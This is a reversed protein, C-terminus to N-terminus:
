AADKMPRAQLILGPEPLRNPLRVVNPEGSAKSTRPESVNNVASAESTSCSHLSLAANMDFRLRGRPGDGLRIAGLADANAYVYQRQVGLADALAAADVLRGTAPESPIQEALKDAIRQALEEIVDDPIALSM